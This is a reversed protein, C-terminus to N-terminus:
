RTEARWLHEYLQACTSKAAQMKNEEDCRRMGRELIEPASAGPQPEEDRKERGSREAEAVEEHEVGVGEGAGSEARESSHLQLLWRECMGGRQEVQLVGRSFGYGPEVRLLDAAGCVM